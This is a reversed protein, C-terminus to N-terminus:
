GSVQQEFVVRTEAIARPAIKMAAATYARISGEASYGKAAVAAVGSAAVAIGKPLTIISRPKHRFLTLCEYEKEPLTPPLTEEPRPPLPTHVHM